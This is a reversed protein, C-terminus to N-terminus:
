EDDLQVPDATWGHAKAWALTGGDFSGSLDPEEFSAVQDLAEESSSAEILCDAGRNATDVAFLRGRRAVEITEELTGPVFGPGKAAYRRYLDDIAELDIKM